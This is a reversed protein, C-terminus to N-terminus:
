SPSDLPDAKELMNRTEFFKEALVRTNEKEPMGEMTEGVNGALKVRLPAPM